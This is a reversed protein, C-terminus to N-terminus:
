KSCEYLSVKKYGKCQNRYISCLAYNYIISNYKHEAVMIDFVNELDAQNTVRECGLM